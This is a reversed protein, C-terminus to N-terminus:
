FSRHKYRVINTVHLDIAAGLKKNYSCRLRTNSCSAENSKYVSGDVIAQLVHKKVKSLGDTSCAFCKETTKDADDDNSQM